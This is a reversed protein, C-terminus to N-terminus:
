IVLFPYTLLFFIIDQIKIEDQMFRPQIYATIHGSCNKPTQLILLGCYSVIKLRFKSFYRKAELVGQMLIVLYPQFSYKEEM